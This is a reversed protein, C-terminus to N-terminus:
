TKGKASSFLDDSDSSSDFLGLKRGVNAVAAVEHVPKKAFLDESDSSSEFLSSKDKGTDTKM